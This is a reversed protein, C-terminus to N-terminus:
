AATVDGGVQQAAGVVAALLVRALDLAVHLLAPLAGPLLGVAMAVADRVPGVGAGAGGAGAVSDLPAVATVRRETAWAGSRRTWCRWVGMEGFPLADMGVVSSIVFQRPWSARPVSPALSPVISSM